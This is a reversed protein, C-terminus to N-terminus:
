GNGRDNDRVSATSDVPAIMPVFIIGDVTQEDGDATFGLREYVPVAYRSANVTIADLSPNARVVRDRAAAYLRGAIGRRHFAPDVFLMSLHRNRRFEIMGALQEGVRAVLTFHDSRHRAVLADAAAYEAYSRVGEETFEHGVFEDFVRMALDSVARSESERLERIVIKRM